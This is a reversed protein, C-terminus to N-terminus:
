LNYFPDSIYYEDPINEPNGDFLISFNENPEIYCNNYFRGYSKEYFDNGFAEVMNRPANTVDISFRGGKKILNELVKKGLAYTGPVNKHINFNRINLALNILEAMSDYEYFGADLLLHFLSMEEKNFKELIGAYYNIESPGTTKSIADAEAMHQVYKSTMELQLYPTGNSLDELTKRFDERSIPFVVTTRKGTNRAKFTAAVNYDTDSPKFGRNQNKNKIQKKSKSM